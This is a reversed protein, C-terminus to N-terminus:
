IPPCNLHILMLKEKFVQYFEASFGGPGAREKTPCSETVAGIESPAIARNLSCFQKESM